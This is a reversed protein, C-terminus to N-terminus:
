LDTDLVEYLKDADVYDQVTHEEGDIRYYIYHKFPYNSSFTEFMTFDFWCIFRQYELGNIRINDIYESIYFPLNYVALPDQIDSKIIEIESDDCYHYKKFYAEFAAEFEERNLFKHNKEDGFPKYTIRELFNKAREYDLETWNSDPDLNILDSGCDIYAHKDIETIRNKETKFQISKYLFQQYEKSDKEDSCREYGTEYTWIEGDFEFNQTLDCIEFIDNVIKRGIYESLDFM